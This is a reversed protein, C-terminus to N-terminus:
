ICLLLVGPEEPKCNLRKEYAYICIPCSMVVRTCDKYQDIVIISVGTPFIQNSIFMCKGSHASLNQQDVIKLQKYELLELKCLILIIDSALSLAGM